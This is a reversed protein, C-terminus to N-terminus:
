KAARRRRRVAGFAALGVGFVALSAPEPVTRVTQDINDVVALGAVTVDSLEGDLFGEIDFAGDVAPNWAGLGTLSTFQNVLVTGSLTDKIFSRATAALVDVDVEVTYWKGVLAPVGLDIDGNLNPTSVFLRWGQTLTSAYVEIAPAFALDTTGVLKNIGVAMPWDSVTTTFNTTGGYRDIRVDARSTYLSSLPVNRYIGQSQAVADKIALAKTPNGFANTTNVVTASPLPPNPPNPNVAGVDLWGTPFTGVTQSEFDESTGILGAKASTASVLAFVAALTLLAKFM